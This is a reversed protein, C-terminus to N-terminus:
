NLTLQVKAREVAGLKEYFIKFQKSSLQATLKKLKEKSTVLDVSCPNRLNEMIKHVIFWYMFVYFFM